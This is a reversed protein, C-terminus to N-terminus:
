LEVEGTEDGWHWSVVSGEAYEGSDVAAQRVAAAFSEASSAAADVLSPDLPWNDGGGSTHGDCAGFNVRDGATMLREIEDRVDSWDHGDLDATWWDEDLDFKEGPFDQRHAAILATATETLTPM